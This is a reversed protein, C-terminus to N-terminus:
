EQRCVSLNQSSVSFDRTMSASQFCSRWLITGVKYGHLLHILRQRKVACTCATVVIGELVALSDSFVRRQKEAQLTDLQDNRSAIEREFKYKQQLQSWAVSFVCGAMLAPGLFNGYKTLHGAMRHHCQLHDKLNHDNAWIPHM